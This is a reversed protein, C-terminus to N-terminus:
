PSKTNQKYKSTSTINLVDRKELFRTSSPDDNSDTELNNDLKALAMTDSNSSKTGNMRAFLERLVQERQEWTLDNLDVLKNIDLWKEAQELDKFVNNTSNPNRSFTRIKPYDAQGLHAALMKKNYFENAEKRYEARNYYIQRKVFELSDLFFREIDGRQELISKALKKVRNMEKNKLELTKRLKDLESSSSELEIRCKRLINDRESEFESVVQALSKELIEVKNQQKFGM